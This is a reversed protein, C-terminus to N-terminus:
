IKFLRLANAFTVSAIVKIDEETQRAIEEAILPIRMSENRKGRFPHPSLYPADTEVLLKDLPVIRAVEKPEKANLYTIPGGLGIYMGLELFLPAMEKSGSYSHMVGGCLPRHNKLIEYTDSTADRMHIVVPKKYKNALEIQAKFFVHEKKREEEAKVWYYDLGIEGLAVVKKHLLLPELEKLSQLELHIVDTPHIGVAAYVHPYLEALRIAEKSSALDWAIVLLHTVGVNEARKIYGDIDAAFQENNLHCHTDFYMIM